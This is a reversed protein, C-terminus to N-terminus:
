PKQQESPSEKDSYQKLAEEAEDGLLFTDKGRVVQLLVQSFRFVLLGFGIPLALRPLWLPIPLDQAYTGIEYVMAVYNWGGFFIIVAYTICLLTAVITVIRGTRPGLMKVVADVGIHSGMRVGYCMGIFILWAFLFTVLELAWVFSYNFVYRAIVQVFTVITMLALLFAILGEELKELWRGM